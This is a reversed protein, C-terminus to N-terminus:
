IAFSSKSHPLHWIELGWLAQTIRSELETVAAGALAAYAPIFRHMEGYLRIHKFTERRTLKSRADMIM